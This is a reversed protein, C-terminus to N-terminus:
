ILSGWSVQQGYSAPLRAWHRGKVRVNLYIPVQGGPM